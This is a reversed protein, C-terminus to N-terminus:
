IGSEDDFTGSSMARLMERLGGPRVWKERFPHDLFTFVRDGVLVTESGDDARVIRLTRAGHEADIYRPFCDRPEYYHNDADVLRYGLTGAGAREDSVPM